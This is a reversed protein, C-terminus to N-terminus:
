RDEGRAARAARMYQETLDLQAIRDWMDDISKFRSAADWLLSWAIRKAVALDDPATPVGERMAVPVGFGCQWAWDKLIEYGATMTPADFIAKALELLMRETEGRYDDTAPATPALTGPRPPVPMWHTAAVEDGGETFWGWFSERGRENLRFRCNTLRRPPVCPNDQDKALHGWLDVWARANRAEGVEAIPRWASPAPTAAPPAPAPQAAAIMNRLMEAWVVRGIHSDVVINNVDDHICGMAAHRGENVAEATPKIPVLAWGDPVLRGAAAQAELEAVRQRLATVVKRDHEPADLPVTITPKAVAQEMREHAERQTPQAKRFLGAKIAADDEEDDWIDNPETM